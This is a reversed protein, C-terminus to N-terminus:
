SGSSEFLGIILKVEGIGLGLTKAIEINSKGEKHLLLIKDKNNGADVGDETDAEIDITEEISETKDEEETYTDKSEHNEDDQVDISTEMFTNELQAKASEVKSNIEAATNKIQIHKNNLMDYLFVAEEHNKNIQGLVTDSYEQVAMIKENSIREMYREAKETAAAITEETKEEIQFEAQKIEKQVLEHIKEKPIKVEKTQEKSLTEPIIFSAAFISIGLVILLIEMLGMCIEAPYLGAAEM